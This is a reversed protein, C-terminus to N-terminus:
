LVSDVCKEITTDKILEVFRDIEEFTNYLYFSARITESANIINPLLKACHNGTRVSIHNANFYSAADQAFIQKLNFTVIGAKSGRNYVTVNELDNLKDAFYNSLQECHEAIKEMGVTELYKIASQLGLVGEICPTGAEFKDPSNKLMIDGNKFFRANSGGGYFIPDMQNLLDFKAYLVGVGSPGLMKHSSFALFDIDDEKVNTPIHPVSQAGDICVLAHNEHAIRCIQKVPNIYGLVNSVYPLAVIKIRKNEFCKVYESLNFSGDVNLPVYEIKAGSEEAAKFWPLINSAHELESTLIVDGETLFKKGFNIAVTNLSATAGSTFVICNPDQAGIFGAVTKRTNDYAKSVDFSIDYDGRHINATKKEYYNVVTDIVCQPKLSTASSDFYILEPNNRFMPFSDRIKNVDFM